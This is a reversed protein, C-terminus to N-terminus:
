KNKYKYELQVACQSEFIVRLDQLGAAIEQILMSGYIDYWWNHHTINQAM